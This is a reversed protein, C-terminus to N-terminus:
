KKPTEPKPNEPVVPKAIFKTRIVPAIEMAEGQIKGSFDGIDNILGDLKIKAM